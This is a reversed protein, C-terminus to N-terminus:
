GGGRGERKGVGSYGAGNGLHGSCSHTNTIRQLPYVLVSYGTSPIGRKAEWRREVGLAAM